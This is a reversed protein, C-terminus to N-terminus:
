RAGAGGVAERIAALVRGAHHIPLSLHGEGPLVRLSSKPLATTLVEAMALSANRADGQWLHVPVAIRALDLGWDSIALAVDRRQGRPTGTASMVAGHVEPRAFVERDSPGFSALASEVFREPAHRWVATTVRYALGFPTWWHRALGLFRISDPNLGETLEPRLPTLGAMIAVGACAPSALALAYGAGGSYGLAM